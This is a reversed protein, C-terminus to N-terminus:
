CVVTRIFTPRTMFCINYRPIISQMKLYKNLGTTRLIILLLLVIALFNAFDGSLIVKALGCSSGISVGFLKTPDLKGFLSMSVNGAFSGRNSCPQKEMVSLLKIDADPAAKKHM